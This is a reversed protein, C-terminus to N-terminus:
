IAHLIREGHMRSHLYSPIRRPWVGTKAARINMVTEIELGDCDLDLARLCRAWFANHGYCLDTYRTGFLMNVLTSLIWNGCRRAVTIDDSNKAPIIMSVTAAVALGIGIARYASPAHTVGLGGVWLTMERKPM